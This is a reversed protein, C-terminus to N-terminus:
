NSWSCLSGRRNKKKGHDIKLKKVGNYLPFHIKFERMQPTGNSELMIASYSKDGVKFITTKVYKMSGPKGCYLDFGSEGTAAMHYMFGAHSTLEVELLIKTSDTKFQIAGGATCNAFQDVAFPLKKNRDLPIRRYIRNKNFWPFGALRFPKEAPDYWTIDEFTGGTIEPARMNTDLKDIQELMPALEKM